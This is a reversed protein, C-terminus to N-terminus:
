SAPRWTSKSGAIFRLSVRRRMCSTASCINMSL